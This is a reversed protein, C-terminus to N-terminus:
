TGVGGGSFKRGKKRADMHAFSYRAVHLFYLVNLNLYRIFLRHCQLHYWFANAILFAHSFLLLMFLILLYIGSSIVMLYHCVGFSEWIMMKLQYLSTSGSVNLTISNGSTTKRSRKSTRRNPEFTKGSGELISRPPEKGRVFCVYIDENCYNHRRM